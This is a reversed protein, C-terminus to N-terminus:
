KASATVKVAGRGEPTWENDNGPRHLVWFDEDVVVRVPVFPTSVDVEQEKKDLLVNAVVEKEGKAGYISIDAPMRVLDDPQTILVKSKVTGGAAAAAGPQVDVKWHAFVTQDIWQAFFWDLAEGNVENALRRFDDVTSPKDKFKEVYQRMLRFFKEDGMVKRLMHLVIAGKEYIVPRYLSSDPYTDKIAGKGRPAMMAFQFYLQGYRQMHMALAKAGDTHETYLADCYTAFGESLWQNYNPDTINIPILNGFWQHALEHALLFEPVDKREVFSDQLFMLSAPGVGGLFPPLPTQIIAMKEYPFTAFKSGYFSLIKNTVDVYADSKGAFEPQFYSYFHIPGVQKEQMVYPGYAFYLGFVPNKTRFEFEGKEGAASGPKHKVMEGNGVVENKGDITFVTHAVFVDGLVTIPYWSSGSLAYGFDGLALQPDYPYKLEGATNRGMGGPGGPATSAMRRPALGPGPRTTAETDGEVGPQTAAGAGRGAPQTTGGLPKDLKKGGRGSMAALIEPPNPEMYQGTYGFGVTATGEEKLEVPLTIRLVEAKHTYEAKAGDVKMDTIQLGNGLMLLLEKKAEGHNALKLTGKVTIRHDAPAFAVEMDYEQADLKQTVFQRFMASPPVPKDSITDYPMVGGYRGKGYTEGEEKAQEGKAQKEGAAAQGRMPSDPFDKQMREFEKAAADHDKMQEDLIKARAFTAEEAWKSKPYKELLETYKQLAVQYEKAMEYLKGLRGLAEDEYDTGPYDKLVKEFTEIPRILPDGLGDMWIRGIEMLAADGDKSKEFTKRFEELKAIAEKYKAAAEEPKGTKLDNADLKILRAEERLAFGANEEEPYDKGLEGLAGMAKARDKGIKEEIDAIRKLAAAGKDSKGYKAGVRKYQEAVNDLEPTVETTTKTLADGQLQKELKEAYAYQQEANHPVSAYWVGGGAAALVAVVLGAAVVGKKGRM